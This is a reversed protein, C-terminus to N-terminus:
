LNILSAHRAGREEGEKMHKMGKWTSDMHCGLNAKAKRGMGVDGM